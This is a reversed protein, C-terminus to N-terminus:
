HVGGSMILIGTGTFGPQGGSQLRFGTGASIGDGTGGETIALVGDGPTMRYGPGDSLLIGAGGDTTIRVGFMMSWMLFGSMDTLGNTSGGAM